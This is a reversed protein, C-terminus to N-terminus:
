HGAEAIERIMAYLGGPERGHAAAIAKITSAGDATVGNRALQDILFQLDLDFSEAVEALRRKGWGAPPAVSVASSDSQPGMAPEQVADRFIAYIQQPTQGHRAALDKLIEEGGTVEIGAERLRAISQELDLGQRAAFAQLSSLEAHGYPPEGYKGAASDKFSASIAVITSLPPVEFYTGVVVLATLAVAVNFSGTVIRLQRVRNRLYSVVARWNYYIHLLGAVLFLVGVTLHQDGWQSKTLGLFRWDAWYAVRGEPVVYLVLSNIVLVVLSVLLTVSTIKRLSM